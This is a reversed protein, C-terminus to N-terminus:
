ARVVAQAEVEIDLGKVALVPVGVASSAPYPAVLYDRRVRRFIPLDRELHVFYSRMMVIDAFSAGGEKLVRGIRQFTQHLQTEMSADLDKPGQGSVFVIRGPQAAIGPSYGTDAAPAGDPHLGRHLTHEAGEAALARPHDLAFWSGGILGTLSVGLFRRRPGANPENSRTMM